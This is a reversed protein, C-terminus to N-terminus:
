FNKTHELNNTTVYSDFARAADDKNEFLGLYVTKYSVTIAAAWKRAGKHWSVGRRGSSNTSRLKKTNRSQVTRTEWSCNSKEYDGKGENRDLTHKQTPAEGMDSLFVEFDDWEDCVQIGAGGYYKYGTDNPNNCRQRMGSWVRYEYMRTGRPSLGHKTHVERVREKNLCGCSKSNGSRLCRLRVNRVEGCDCKCVFSRETGGKLRKTPLEQLITLRNFKDGAVIKLKKGM